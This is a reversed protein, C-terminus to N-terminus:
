EIWVKFTDTRPESDNFWGELEAPALTRVTKTVTKLPTVVFVPVETWASAKGSADALRFRFTWTKDGITDFDVPILSKDPDVEGIMGRVTATATRDAQSDAVGSTAFPEWAGDPMRYEVELSVLPSERDRGRASIEVGDRGLYAHIVGDKLWARQPTTREVGVGEVKPDLNYAISSLDLPEM